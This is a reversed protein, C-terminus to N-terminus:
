ILQKINQDPIFVDIVTVVAVMIWSLATLNRFEFLFDPFDKRMESINFIGDWKQIKIATNQLQSASL